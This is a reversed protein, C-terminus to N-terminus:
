FFVLLLIPAVMKLVELSAYLSTITKSSDMFYLGIYILIVLGLMIYGSKSKASGKSSM